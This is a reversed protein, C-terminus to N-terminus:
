ATGNSPVDVTVALCQVGPVVLQVEALRDVFDPVGQGIVM